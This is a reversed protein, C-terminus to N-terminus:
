SLLDLGRLDERPEDFSCSGFSTVFKRRAKIRDLTIEWDRWAFVTDHFEFSSSRQDELMEITQAEDWHHEASLVGAGLVNLFGHMETKVEDRFQRIPHHLGATFKIPVHHKTSGLIARAIQVSNPFADVTVGGTRLKYGFAPQKARALLAITQAASEAPTEWFTQLKLDALLGAAENLKALDVDPPALMELQVVSVLDLHQKQFSRIIEAANKLESLFDKANEAKAGLASIRLPHQKDFQSVFAAADSFKTVPLVFTSLMWSDPARVYQAQNKLAPELELDCPPFMGAYDISRVLLARVSAASM